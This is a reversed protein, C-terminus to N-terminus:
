ADHTGTDKCPTGAAQGLNSFSGQFSRISEPSLGLAKKLDETAGAKDNLMLKVRGREMYGESFHPIREVSENLVSLALDLRHTATYATALGIYAAGTQPNQEKVKNYYSIATDTDGQRLRVLAKTLLWKEPAQGAGNHELLFDIDAEAEQFSGIFLLTRARLYRAEALGEDQALAQTLLAITGLSDGAENRAVAKQYLALADKGSGNGDTHPNQNETTM